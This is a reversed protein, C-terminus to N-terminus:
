PSVPRELRDRFRRSVPVEVGNSLVALGDGSQTPKYERIAPRSVLWSRHVRVMEGGAAGVQDALTGLTSRMTMIRDATQLEVYNGASRASLIDAVTVYVTRGGSKVTLQRTAAADRRATALDARMQGFQRSLMIVVVMIAYSFLDKRFEYFFERPLNDTFIYTEGWFVAHGIKRLMVFGIIHVVSYLVAAPLHVLVLRRWDHQGPMARSVAAVGLPFLAIIVVVSSFEWFAVRAVEPGGGSRAHETAYSWVALGQALMLVAVYWVFAIRDARRDVERPDTKETETRSEPLVAEGSIGDAM